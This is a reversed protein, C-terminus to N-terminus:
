ASWRTHARGYAGTSAYVHAIGLIKLLGPATDLVLALDDAWLDPSDGQGDTSNAIYITTGGIVMNPLDDHLGDVVDLATEQDDPHLTTAIWDKAAAVNYCVYNPTDPHPHILFYTM